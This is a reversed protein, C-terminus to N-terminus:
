VDKQMLIVMNEPKTKVDYLFHRLIPSTIYYPINAIVSYKHLPAGQPYGTTNEPCGCPADRCIDVDTPEYKLVDINNIHFDIGSLDFDNNKIRKELIEIMDKDLEVLNLSKPKRAILKETM